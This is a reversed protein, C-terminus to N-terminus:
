DVALGDEDEDTEVEDEAEADLREVREGEGAEGLGIPSGSDEKRWKRLFGSDTL